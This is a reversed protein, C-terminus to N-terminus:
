SIGEKATVLKQYMKMLEAVCESETNLRGWFGYAEMVARDNAQHAAVLDAFLYMKEGYMDALKYRSIICGAKAARLYYEYAKKYDVTGTRGYYWIYGLGGLAEVNNEDYAVTMEYYKLALVYEKEYYYAVGLKFMYEPDSTEEILYKLAETYIFFDDESYNGNNKHFSDVIDLAEKITM